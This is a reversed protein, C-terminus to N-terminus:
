CGKATRSFCHPISRNEAYPIVNISASFLFGGPLPVCMYERGEIAIVMQCESASSEKLVNQHGNAKLSDAKRRLTRSTRMLGSAVVVNYKSDGAFNLFMAKSREKPVM